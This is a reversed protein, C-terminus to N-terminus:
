SATSTSLSLTYDQRRGGIQGQDDYQDGESDWRFRGTAELAARAAASLVELEAYSAAYLTLQLRAEDSLVCPRRTRNLPQRNVLQYTAAPLVVGAELRNPRIRTGLLAVTAPAGILTTYLLQGPALM